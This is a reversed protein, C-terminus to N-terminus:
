LAKVVSSGDHKQSGRVSLDHIHCTGELYEDAGRFYEQSIM